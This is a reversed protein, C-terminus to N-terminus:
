HSECSIDYKINDNKKAQQTVYNNPINYKKYKPM